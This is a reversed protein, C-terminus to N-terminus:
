DNMSGNIFFFTAKVVDTDLSFLFNAKVTQEIYKQLTITLLRFFIKLAQITIGDNSVIEAVLRITLQFYILM